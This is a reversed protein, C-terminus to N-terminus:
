YRLLAAIGGRGVLKEAAPGDVTEVQGGAEIVAQSLRDVMRSVAELPASCVPCAGSEMVSFSGCSRCESGGVTLGKVYIKKWVRGQNTAEVVAELGAVAKGGEHLEAVVGNVIEVEHEREMAAQVERIRALVTKVAATVPLAITEVLKGRLRRPLLRAVQSAAEIPGAVILRDYPVEAALDHLTDVVRKAHIVIEQDRHRQFRKQSWWQDTGTTRTRGTSASVLGGHEVLEGMFVTFVRTRQRDTLVVAYREHEDMAELAPRLFTGRRWHASAPLAIGIQHVEELGTAPHVVVMATRGQAELDRVLGLARAAAGELAPDEGHRGLLGKLLAEAQVVFGRKRNARKNQDIDVYMTATFEDHQTLANLRRLAGQDLMIAEM